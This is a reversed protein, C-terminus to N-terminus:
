LPPTADLREKQQVRVCHVRGDEDVVVDRVGCLVDHLDASASRAACAWALATDLQGRTARGGMGRLCSLLIRKMEDISLSLAVPM